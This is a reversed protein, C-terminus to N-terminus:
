FKELQQLLFCFLHMALTELYTYIRDVYIQIQTIGTWLSALSAYIDSLSVM